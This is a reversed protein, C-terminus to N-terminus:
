CSFCYKRILILLMGDMNDDSFTMSSSPLPLTMNNIADDYDKRIGNTENEDVGSQQRRSLAYERIKMSAVQNWLLSQYAHV